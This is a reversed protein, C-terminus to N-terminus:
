GPRRAELQRTRYDGCTARFDSRALHRQTKFAGSWGAFKPVVAVCAIRQNASTMDHTRIAFEDFTLHDAYDVM